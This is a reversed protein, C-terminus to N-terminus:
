PTSSDHPLEFILTPTGSEHGLYDEIHFGEHFDRATKCNLPTFGQPHITFVCYISCRQVSGKGPRQELSYGLRNQEGLVRQSCTERRAAHGLGQTAGRDCYRRTHRSPIPRGKDEMASARRAQVDRRDGGLVQPCDGSLQLVGPHRGWLM